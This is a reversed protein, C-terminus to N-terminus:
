KSPSWKGPGGIGAALTALLRFLAPLHAQLAAGHLLGHVLPWGILAAIGLSAPLVWVGVVLLGGCVLELLATGLRMAHAVTIGGGPHLLPGLGLFLAYGGAALRLLLM